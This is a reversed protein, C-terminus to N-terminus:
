IRSLRGRGGIINLRFLRVRPSDEIRLVTRLNESPETNCNESLDPQSLTAAPGEQPGQIDLNTFGSVKFTLWEEAIPDGFEDLRPFQCTGNVFIRHRLHSGLNPDTDNDDRLYDIASQLHDFTTPLEDEDEVDCDVIADIAFASGPWMLLSVLLLTGYRFLRLSRKYLQM